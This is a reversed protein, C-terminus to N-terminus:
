SCLCSRLLPFRTLAAKHIAHASSNCNKRLETLFLNVDMGMASISLFSESNCSSLAM